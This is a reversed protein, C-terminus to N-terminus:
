RAVYCGGGYHEPGMTGQGAQGGVEGGDGQFPATPLATIACGPNESSALNQLFAGLELERALQISELEQLQARAQM